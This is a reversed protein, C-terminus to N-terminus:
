GPLGLPRREGDGISTTGRSWGDKCELAAKQKGPPRFLPSERCIGRNRL